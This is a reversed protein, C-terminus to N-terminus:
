ETTTETSDSTETTEPTESAEAAAAEDAAAAEPASEEAPAEAAPAETPEAETTEAAPAEAAPAAGAGGALVSPDQQAKAELAGLARAAQALPAAFLSVAQSLSAKMAGALKALLVERSELDALKRIEDATLPKGDMVGGKVVLAPHAKAFDRLGKAATVPDGKVFAVATPGALLEDPVNLGARDAAIRTLTNKVVAYTTDAGLARRLEKLQKVTLGRYETLVTAAAAQFSETLEAVSDGKDPRVTARKHTVTAPETATETATAM